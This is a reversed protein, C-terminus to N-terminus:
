FFSYKVAPEVGIVAISIGSAHLGVTLFWLLLFVTCCRVLKAVISTPVISSFFFLRFALLDKKRSMNVDTIKTFDHMVKKEGKRRQSGPM